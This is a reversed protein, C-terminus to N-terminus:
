DITVETECFNTNGCGYVDNISSLNNPFCGWWTEDTSQNETTVDLYVQETNTPLTFTTTLQDTPSSLTAPLNVGGSSNTQVLALVQDPPRQNLGDRNEHHGQRAPYFELDAKVTFIGNLLTNYPKPCDTTCNQLIMTGQQPASFLASYDTIDREVHWANTLTSSPEPTTGFYLNVNGLFLIATRDFQIGGNESFDAELVVKEWPGSCDRPPTFEFTQNSESFFAFQYGAFLPVKCPREPPRPVLPDATVTFQTGIQRNTSQALVTGTSTLSTTLLAVFLLKRLCRRQPTM